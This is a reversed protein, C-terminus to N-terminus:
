RSMFLGAKSIYLEFLHFEINLICVVKYATFSYQHYSDSWVTFLPMNFINLFSYQLVDQYSKM